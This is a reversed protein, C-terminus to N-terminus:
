ISSKFISVAESDRFASLAFRRSPGLMSVAARAWPAVKASQLSNIYEEYTQDYGIQKEIEYDKINWYPPSTIILGISQDALESIIHRTNGVFLTHSTKL